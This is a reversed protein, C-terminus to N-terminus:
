NELIIFVKVDDENLFRWPGDNSLNRARYRFFTFVKYSGRM